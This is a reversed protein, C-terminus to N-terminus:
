GDAGFIDEGSYVKELASEYPNVRFGWKKLRRINTRVPMNMPIPHHRTPNVFATLAIAYVLPVVRNLLIQTRQTKHVLRKFTVPNGHLFDNRVRYIKGYLFGAYNTSLRKNRYRVFRKRRLVSTSLRVENLLDVVTELNSNVRRPHALIEFSSIWLAINVGFDYFWLSNKHPISAASYAVALSRFVKNSDWEKRGLLFRKKWLRRLDRWLQEDPDARIHLGTKTLMTSITGRFGDPKDWSNRSMTLGSLSGGDKSPTLPFLDFYDSFLTGVVNPNGISSAVGNLICSLAFTNRFSVVAENAIEPSFASRDYLLVTVEQKRGKEDTFGNILASLALNHKAREQIRPDAAPVLAVAEAEFVRKLTLNPLIYAVAFGDM